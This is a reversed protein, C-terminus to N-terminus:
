SRSPSGPAARRSDQPSESASGRSGRRRPTTSEEMATAMGRITPARYFAGLPLKLRLEEHVKFLMRTALLSHGGLEFFNDDVSVRRLGLIEKWIGELQQELPTGPGVYAASGRARDQGPAPLRARDVKGNVTLPIADLAVFAAPVMYEPLREKLHQRLSPALKTAVAAKIPRTAFASWPQRAAAQRDPGPLPTRGPALTPPVFVVDFADRRDYSWLVEVRVGLDAALAHFAEPDLGQAGAAVRARLSGVLEEGASSRLQDVLAAAAVCRRNPVGSLWVTQGRAQAVRAAVEGVTAVGEGWTLPVGVSPAPAAPDLHLLADYRFQSMENHHVGRRLRIEVAGNRGIERALAHFFDPDIILEGELRLREEVQERLTAVTTADDAQALAVDAHFDALTALSRVDGVFLSGGPKLKASAAKLVDVLYEISPLYQVVSNIVVLDVSADPIEALEHAARHLLTLRDSPLGATRWVDDIYDLAAKSLDLATYSRVKPAVRFLLLGTGAGIELVDQPALALLREVTGDVWERMEAAPVPAGTFSSNWGVINFTPDDTGRGKGYWADFVMESQAIQERHVDQDAALEDRPVVYAVLQREGQDDERDVVVAERVAPHESLRAEIEGLEIRFGRIKVQHDRRGLYELDGDPLRRALDGSKYLKAARDESTPDPIFREATLEPRHLYGRAVGAGGVYMEGTVGVPVPAGDRDLLHIQWGPLPSGIVSGKGDDLDRQRIPRYTVHVTTETIGYMNVLLPKEDGHRAFWPQLMKLDLAEGGFIVYRLSLPSTAAGDARILQRFASPTQNLVTVQEEHLLERFMEPSRSVLYPVVVLRGGYLLAGWLEWVSFDFAYSHFLTWVDDPGFSYLADAGDFLALVNRHAIQVGKPTGTSGSTYIVYCLSDSSAGSKPNDPSETALRERCDELCLVTAASDAVATRSQRDTLILSLATDQVIFALREKPYAPDLPVYAGGAKLIGLIGVVVDLSRGFCLGVLTEPGVGLRRLYHALRNAQENLEAYTMAAGNCTLATATPRAAAQADFAEHLCRQTRIM